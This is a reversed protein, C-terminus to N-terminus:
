LARPHFRNRSCKERSARAGSRSCMLHTEDGAEAGATRHTPDLVVSRMAGLDVVGDTLAGTLREAVSFAESDVGRAIVVGAAHAYANRQGLRYWYDIEDQRDVGLHANRCLAVLREGTPDWHLSDTDDNV